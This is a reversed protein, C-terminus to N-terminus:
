LYIVNGYMSTTTLPLMDLSRILYEPSRVKQTWFVIGAHQIGSAHLRLFDSDRTIIVRNENLAFELQEIDSAGILKAENSTTIDVGRKQLASSIIVPMNEDLHFKYM